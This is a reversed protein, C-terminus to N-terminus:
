TNEKSIDERTKKWPRYSAPSTLPFAPQVDFFEIKTSTPPM